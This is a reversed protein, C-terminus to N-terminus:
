EDEDPVTCYFVVVSVTSSNVGSLKAGIYEGFASGERRTLEIFASSGDDTQVMFYPRDKYARTFYFSGNGILEGFEVTHPKKEEM